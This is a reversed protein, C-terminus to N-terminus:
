ESIFIVNRLMTPLMTQIFSWFKVFYANASTVHISQLECPLCESIMHAVMLQTQLSSPSCLKALLHADFTRLDQSIVLHKPRHQGFIKELDQVQANIVADLSLRALAESLGTCNSFKVHLVSGKDEFTWEYLVAVSTEERMRSMYYQYLKWKKCSRDKWYEVFQAKFM